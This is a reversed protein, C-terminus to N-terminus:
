DTSDPSIHFPLPLVVIDRHLNGAGLLVSVALRDQVSVLLGLSGRAQGGFGSEGEGETNVIGVPLNQRSGAPHQVSPLLSLGAGVFTM